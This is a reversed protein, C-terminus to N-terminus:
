EAAQLLHFEAKGEALESKDVWCVPDLTDFNSSNFFFVKDESSFAYGVSFGLQACSIRQVESGDYDLVLLASEEKSASDSGTLYLYRDDFTGYLKGEASIEGVVSTEGSSLEIKKLTNGADFWYLSDERQALADTISFGDEALKKTEGTSICYAMLAYTKADKPGEELQYYVWDDTCLKAYAQPADEPLKSADQVQEKNSFVAVPESDPDSLSVLYLTSIDGDITSEVFNLVLHGEGVLSTYFYNVADPLLNKIEKRDQGDPGMQNLVLGGGLPMTLYYLTNNWASIEFSGTPLYSSCVSPDSHNCDPKSCLVTMPAKLESDLFYIQNGSLIYWANDTCAYYGPSSLYQNYDVGASSGAVPAKNGCGVLLGAIIIFCSVAGIWKRKM